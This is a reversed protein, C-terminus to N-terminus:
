KRIYKVKTEYKIFPIYDIYVHKAVVDTYLKMKEIQDINFTKYDIFENDDLNYHVVYNYKKFPEDKSQKETVIAKIPITEEVTSYTFLVMEMFMLVMLIFIGFRKYEIKKREDSYGEMSINISTILTAIVIFGFKFGLSGSGASIIIFSICVGVLFSYIIQNISLSTYWQIKNNVESRINM